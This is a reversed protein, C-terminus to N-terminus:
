NQHSERGAKYHGNTGAGPSLKASLESERVHQGRHCAGSEETLGNTIGKWLDSASLKSRCELDVNGKIDNVKNKRQFSVSSAIPNKISLFLYM